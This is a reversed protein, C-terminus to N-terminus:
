RIWSTLKTNVGVINEKAQVQRFAENLKLNVSKGVYRKEVPVGKEILNGIYSAVLQETCGLAVAVEKYTVEKDESLRYLSSFVDKEKTTLPVISFTESSKKDEPKLLDIISDVKATLMTLRRDLEMLYAHNQQVETTNENIAELHEDLEERVSEIELSLQNALAASTRPSLVKHVQQEVDIM